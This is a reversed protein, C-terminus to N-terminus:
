EEDLINDDVLQLDNGLFENEKKLRVRLFQELKKVLRNTTKEDLVRGAELTKIAEENEGLEEALQKTSLKTRRRGMQMNWHFNNVLTDKVDQTPKPQRDEFFDKADTEDPNKAIPLNESDVCKRCMKAIGSRTIVDYILTDQGSKGCNECYKM